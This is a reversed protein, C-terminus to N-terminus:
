VMFPRYSITYFDYGIAKVEEVTLIKGEPPRGKLKFCLCVDELKHSYEIRNVPVTIGLLETLVQATSEHGIASTIDESYIEVLTLADALTRDLLWYRGPVTIITTNLLILSM